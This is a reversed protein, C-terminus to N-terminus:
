PCLICMSKSSNGQLFFLVQHNLGLSPLALWISLTGLLPLCVNLGGPSEPPSLSQTKSISSAPLPHDVGPRNHKDLPPPVVEHRAFATHFSKSFTVHPFYITHYVAEATDPRDFSAFRCDGSSAPASRMQVPVAPSGLLGTM